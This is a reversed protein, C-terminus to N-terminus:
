KGLIYIIWPALKTENIWDINEGERGLPEISELLKLKASSFLERYDEDFWIIDEVPRKDDVDKMIIKVKEGSKANRNEPFGITSFSTWENVYIRDASDLLVIKGNDTLLDKLVTLLEKRNDKGPINDFTFIATILDYRENNLVSFDSGDVLFYKGIPDYEKAINIMSGSIDIGVADYGHKKLFRTSRGTGCGFDLAKKGNIYKTFIEPLDRYALYYTGPFELAAYSEARKNDDYVNKFDM